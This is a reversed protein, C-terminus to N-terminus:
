IRMIACTWLLDEIIKKVVPVSVANGALKYAQTDSVIIEYDDPFGQLRFCERPTLRRLQPYLITGATSCGENTRITKVYGKTKWLDNYPDYSLQDVWTTPKKRDFSEKVRIKMVDSLEYKTPVDEELLTTIGKRAKQGVPFEFARYLEVDRFGVIFARERNQPLGFNRTNLVAHKVHYGLETLTEKIVRWTKGKDHRLLNRVNELLFMKPKTADIIRALEFFLNGRKDEFGKMKTKAFGITSFPQCPFGAFLVDYEPIEAPDLKYVDENDPEKGFYKGYMKRAYKNIESSYVCEMGNEEAAIRFGGIGAFLDVFRM